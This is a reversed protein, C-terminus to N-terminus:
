EDLVRGMNLESATQKELNTETPFSYLFAVFLKIGMM